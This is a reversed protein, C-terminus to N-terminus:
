RKVFTLMQSLAYNFLKLETDTVSVVRADPIYSFSTKMNRGDFTYTYQKDISIADRKAM